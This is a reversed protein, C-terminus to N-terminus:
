HPMTYTNINLLIFLCPILKKENENNLLSCFLLLYYGSFKRFDSYVCWILYLLIGNFYYLIINIQKEGEWVWNWTIIFLEKNLIEINEAKGEYFLLFNIVYLSFLKYLVRSFLLYIFCLYNIYFVCFPLYIFPVYTKARLKRAYIFHTTHNTAQYIRWLPIPIWPNKGSNFDIITGILILSKFPQETATSM